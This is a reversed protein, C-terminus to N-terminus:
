FSLLKIIEKAFREANQPGNATVINGDVQVPEGTYIVGKRELEMGFTPFATAKKGKLVGANALIVPGACIACLLKNRSCTERAIDHAIGSDFYCEAGTGGVFVIADYNEVRIDEILMDPKIKIGLKGRAEELSTSAIHVTAGSEEFVSKPVSLEEDRFNVSAIIMVIKKM